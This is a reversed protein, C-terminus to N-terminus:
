LKLNPLQPSNYQNNKFSKKHLSQACPIWGLSGIPSFYKLLSLFAITQLCHPCNQSLILLYLLFLIPLFPWSFGTSRLCSIFASSLPDPNEPSLLVTTSSALLDLYQLQRLTISHSLCFVYSCLYSCNYSLYFILFLSGFTKEIYWTNM